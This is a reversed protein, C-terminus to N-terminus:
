KSQRADYVDKLLRDRKQQPTESTPELATGKRTPRNPRGDAAWSEIQQDVKQLSLYTGNMEWKLRLFGSCAIVDETTWGGALLAKAAQGERPYNPLKKLGLSKRYGDLLQHFATDPVARTSPRTRPDLEHLYPTPPPITEGPVGLRKAVHVSKNSITEGSSVIEDGSSVIKTIRYRVFRKDRPDKETTLLGVKELRSIYKVASTMGIGLTSCITPLAPWSEGKSNSHHVLLCYIAFGIPEIMRAYEDLM